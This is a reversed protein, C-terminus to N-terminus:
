QHRHRLITFLEDTLLADRFDAVEPRAWLERPPIKAWEFYEDNDPTFSADIMSCKQTLYYVLGAEDRAADSVVLKGALADDILAFFQEVTEAKWVFSFDQYYAKTSIIAPKGLFAAEIGVTSTHPLVVKANRLLDYTSTEEAASIWRVRDALAPFKAVTASFDDSGRLHAKREVPHQRICIHVGPRTELWALVSSIFADVSQFLRQRSLAASDWRINLPMLIDCPINRNSAAAVQFGRKDRAETRAALEERGAKILRRREGEDIESSLKQFAHVLEGLHAAIGNRALRLRGPGSDYTSFALGLDQVVSVYVASVGFIGGPILMWDYRQASLLNRIKAIHRQTELEAEPHSQFFEAVTSEGKTWRIANEHVIARSREADAANEEASFQSVDILEIWEPLEPFIEELDAIHKKNPINGTVDCPDWLITVHDGRHALMLACEISFLPVATSMWPTVLVAVRRGRGPERGLERWLACRQKCLDRRERFPNRNRPKSEAKQPPSTKGFRRILNSIKV